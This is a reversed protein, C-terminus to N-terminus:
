KRTQTDGMRQDKNAKNGNGIIIQVNNNNNSEIKRAKIKEIKM